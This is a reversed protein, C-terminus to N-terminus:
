VPVTEGPLSEGLNPTESEEPLFLDDNALENAQEYTMGQRLSQQLIEFAREQAKVLAQYLQGKQELDRFMKPRAQKWQHKAKMGRGNLQKRAEEETM